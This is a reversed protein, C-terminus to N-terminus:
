RIGWNARAAPIWKITAVWLGLTSTMVPTMLALIGLRIAKATECATSERVIKSWAPASRKSPLPSM